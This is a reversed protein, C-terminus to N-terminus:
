SHSMTYFVSGDAALDLFHTAELLDDTPSFAQSRIKDIIPVIESSNWHRREIERKKLNFDANKSGM